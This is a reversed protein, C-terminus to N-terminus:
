GYVDNEVIVTEEVGGSLGDENLVECPECYANGEIESADGNNVLLMPQQQTEPKANEKEKKKWVIGLAVTISVVVIMIAGVVSVAAFGLNDLAMSTASFANPTPIISTTSEENQMTGTEADAPSESTSTLEDDSICIFPFEAACDSSILEIADDKKVARVCTRNNLVPHGDAWPLDSFTNTNHTACLAKKKKLCDARSLSASCDPIDLWGCNRFSLAACWKNSSGVHDNEWSFDHMSANINWHISYRESSLRQPMWRLGYYEFEVCLTRRFVWSNHLVGSKFSDKSKCKGSSHWMWPGREIWADIWTSQNSELRDVLSEDRISSLDPLQSSMDECIQRAISFESRNEQALRIGPLLAIIVFIHCLRHCRCVQTAFEM